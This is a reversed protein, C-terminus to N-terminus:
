CYNKKRKRKRKQENEEEGFDEKELTFNRKISAKGNIKDYIDIAMRNILDIINFGNVASAELFYNLNYQNKFTEGEEKKVTRKEEQDVKNGILYQICGAARERVINYWKELDDFSQRDIISYVYIVLMTSNFLNPTYRAFDDNGCADWLQIQILKKNVKIQYNGIDISITPSCEVFKNRIVRFSITSKGVGTLGLIIVKNSKLKKDLKEGIYELEYTKGNQELNTKKNEGEKM